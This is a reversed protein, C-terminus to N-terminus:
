RRTESAGPQRRVARRRGLWVLWAGACSIFLSTILFWTPLSTENEVNLNLGIAQLVPDLEKLSLLLANSVAHMMMGPFISGSSLRIGCLVLGLLFTAPFRELTPSQDTVVHFAAFVFTSILMPKLWQNTHKQLTNILFGRFFLEECIAPVLALTVIRILYPTESTLRIALEKLKSNNLMELWQLPGKSFV